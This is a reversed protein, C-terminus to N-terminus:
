LGLWEVQVKGSLGRHWRTALSPLQTGLPVRASVERLSPAAARKQGELTLSQPDM